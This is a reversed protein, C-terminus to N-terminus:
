VFESFVKEILNTNTSRLISVSSGHYTFSGNNNKYFRSSTNISYKNMVVSIIKCYSVFLVNFNGPFQSFICRELANNTPSLELACLNTVFTQNREYKCAVRM